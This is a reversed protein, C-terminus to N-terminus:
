LFFFFGSFPYSKKKKRQIVDLLGSKEGAIIIYLPPPSHSPLIKRLNCSFFRPDLLFSDWGGWFESLFVYYM